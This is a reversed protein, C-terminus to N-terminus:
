FGATAADLIQDANSSLVKLVLSGAIVTQFL